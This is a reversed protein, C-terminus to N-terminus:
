MLTLRKENCFEFDILAVQWAGEKTLLVIIL